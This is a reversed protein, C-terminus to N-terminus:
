PNQKRFDGLTGNGFYHRYPNLQEFLQEKGKEVDAGYGSWKKLNYIGSTEFVADEDICFRNLIMNGAKMPTDHADESPEMFVFLNQM